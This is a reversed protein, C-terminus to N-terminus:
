LGLSTTGLNPQWEAAAAVLIQQLTVKPPSFLMPFYINNSLFPSVILPTATFQSRVDVVLKEEEINKFFFVKFLIKLWPLLDLSPDFFAMVFLFSAPCNVLYCVSPSNFDHPSYFLLFGLSTCLLSCCHTPCTSSLITFMLYFLCFHAPIHM